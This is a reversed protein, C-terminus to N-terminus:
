LTSSNKMAKETNTWSIRTFHIVLLLMKIAEEEKLLKTDIDIQSKILFKENQINQNKSKLQDIEKLLLEVSYKPDPAEYRRQLNLQDVHLQYLEKDINQKEAIIADLQDKLEKFNDHNELQQNHPAKSQINSDIKPVNIEQIPFAAINPHAINTSKSEEFQMQAIANTVPESIQSLQVSIQSTPPQDKEPM